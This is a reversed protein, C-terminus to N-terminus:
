LVDWFLFYVFENTINGGLVGVTDEDGLVGADSVFMVELDFENVVVDSDVEVVDVIVGLEEDVRHLDKLGDDRESGRGDVRGDGNGIGLEVVEVFVEEVEFRGLLRDDLVEM